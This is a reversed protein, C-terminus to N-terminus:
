SKGPLLGQGHLRWALELALSSRGLGAAGVLCLCRCAGGRPQLRSALDESYGGDRPVYLADQPPLGWGLSTSSPTCDKPAPTAAADEIVAAPSAEEATAATSAEEPSRDVTAPTPGEPVPDVPLHGAPSGRASNPNSPDSDLSPSPTAAPQAAAAARDVPAAVGAAAGATDTAAQTSSPRPSAARSPPRTDPAGEAGPAGDAAAGATAGPTAPTAPTAEAVAPTAREGDAKGQASNRDSNRATAALQQKCNSATETGPVPPSGPARLQQVALLLARSDQPFALHVEDVSM